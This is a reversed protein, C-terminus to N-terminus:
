TLYEEAQELSGM